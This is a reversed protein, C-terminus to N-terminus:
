ENELIEEPRDPEVGLYRMAFTAIRSFTPAACMGGQHNYARPKHYAPKQYTVLLVVEPRGAPIIGIFSANYNRQSYGRGEKMQATGTKGAVSYGRVAARRATGGKKAVGEMMQRVKRATSVSIPRSVVERAHAYRVTGDPEVVKEVVYPRLLEGDNAIACYASALQIATVAVFQGIPARSQSAKDWKSPEPLIGREEGPLDIETRAGLGFAKMYKHLRVPGLNVGLKGFVINSSHVLADRVSMMPPWVHSGDGPLKYYRPDDRRTDMLTDPGVLRENLVACATITKM